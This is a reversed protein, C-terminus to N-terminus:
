VKMAVILATSRCYANGTKTSVSGSLKWISARLISAAIVSRVAAMM